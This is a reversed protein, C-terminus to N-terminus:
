LGAKSEPSFSLTKVAITGPGAEVWTREISLSAARVQGADGAGRREEPPTDWIWIPVFENATLSVMNCWFDRARLSYLESVNPSGPKGYSYDVFAFDTSPVFKRMAQPFVKLSTKNSLIDVLADAVPIGTKIRGPPTASDFLVPRNLGWWLPETAMAHHWQTAQYRGADSIWTFNLGTLGSRGIAEKCQETIFDRFLWQRHSPMRDARCEFNNKDLPPYSCSNPHIEFWEWGPKADLRLDFTLKGSGQFHPERQWKRLQILVEEAFPSDLPIGAKARKM